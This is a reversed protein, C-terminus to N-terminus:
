RVLNVMGKKMVEKGSLLSLKAVYVYVGTPQPKGKSIGNWGENKDKTTFIKEGWQNWITLELRDISTGYVKFVDNLGNNDPTFTNPIYIDEATKLTVLVQATDACDDTTKGTVSFTQPTSVIITQTTASQNPFIALPQWSTVTFARSGTVVLSVANGASIPNPSASLSLVLPTIANLTVITAPSICNGNNITVNYTGPAVNTFVNNPSYATGNISYTTANAIPFTVTITGSPVPCTPQVMAVTPAPPIVPDTNIVAVTAASTCGNNNRVTVNYTGGVVGNFVGTTNSYDVGDISYSLGAGIPATITITGTAVTCSPQTTSVTPAPPTGPATNITVVTAVSVCGGSSQATVNYLGPTLTPFLTTATYITGDISYMYASNPNSITISGTPSACTPQVVNVAPAAPTVPQPNIVVSVVASTCGATDKVRVGYTRPLLSNYVTATSYTTGSDISYQYTANIPSTITIGGTPTTCTPQSISISPTAPPNLCPNIVVGFEKPGCLNMSPITPEIQTWVTRQNDPLNMWISQGTAGNYGSQGTAWLTNNSKLLYSFNEGAFIDIANSDVLTPTTVNINNGSGLQGYINYGWGYVKGNEDLALCSYGDNNSSLAIIPAAGAPFVIKTPPVYNSTTGGLGLTGYQADGSGFVYVEGVANLAYAALTNGKIDVINVLGPVTIPVNSNVPSFWSKGGTLKVTGNALLIATAGAGYSNTSEYGLAVARVANTIGQMQVPVTIPTNNQSTTGNGLQGASNQGVAWVTSDNKVFVVHDIGADVFKVENLVQIPNISFGSPLFGVALGEGWVWATNDEKIAASVYGTTYFKVHTMGLAPVPTSTNIYTGNGLEGYENHGWGYLQNNSDCVTYASYAGVQYNHAKYWSRGGFGDGTMSNQATTLHPQLLCLLTLLLLLKM